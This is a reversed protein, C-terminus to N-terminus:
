ALLKNDPCNARINQYKGSFRAFQGKGSIPIEEETILWSLCTGSEWFEIWRDVEPLM